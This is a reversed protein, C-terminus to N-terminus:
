STVVFIKLKIKNNTVSSFVNVLLIKLIRKNLIFMNNFIIFFVIPGLLGINSFQITYGTM